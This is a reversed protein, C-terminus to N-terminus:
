PAGGRRSRRTASRAGAIAATGPIPRCGIQRDAARFWRESLMSAQGLLLKGEDM